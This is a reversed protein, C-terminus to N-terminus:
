SIHPSFSSIYYTPRLYESRTDSVTATVGTSVLVSDISFANAGRIDTELQDGIMVMDKTGSRQLAEEFIAKHPKGLRDFRLDPRDPYRLQLAAEFMLAISGSAIGFGTNTKPFILDPNPLVLCIHDGNDLRQFLSSLASDVTELFPFGTEDGIVFVDFLETPSVVRGGANEVYQRTDEPGLVCCRAGRLDHATFYNKLLSGSTIIRQPEIAVGFGQYKKAATQPLRAADNTLIYYPKKIRNLEAILESAGALSGSSNILVGYADFLLVGYREILEAVTIEPIATM